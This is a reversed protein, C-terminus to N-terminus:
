GCMGGHVQDCIWCEAVVLPGRNRKTPDKLPRPPPGGASARRRKSAKGPGVPGRGPGGPPAGPGLEANRGVGILPPARGPIPDVEAPPPGLGRGTARNALCVVVSGRKTVSVVALGERELAFVTAEVLARSANVERMLREVTRKGHLGVQAVIEHTTAAGLSVGDKGLMAAREDDRQKQALSALVSAAYPNREVCGTRSCYPKQERTKQYCGPTECERPPFRGERAHPSFLFPLGRVDDSM